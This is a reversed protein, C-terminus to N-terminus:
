NTLKNIKKQLVEISNLPKKDVIKRNVVKNIINQTKKRM